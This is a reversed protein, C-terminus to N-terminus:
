GMGCFSHILARERTRNANGRGAFNVIAWECPRLSFNRSRYPRTSGSPARRSGGSGVIGHLAAPWIPPTIEALAENKFVGPKLGRARMNRVGPDRSDICGAERKHKGVPENKSECRDRCWQIIAEALWGVARPGLQIKQPFEGAKMLRWRTSRSLRTAERVERERWILEQM